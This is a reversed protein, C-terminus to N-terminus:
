TFTGDSRVDDTVVAKTSPSFHRMMGSEGSSVAFTLPSSFFSYLGLELKIEKTGDIDNDFYFAELVEITIKNGSKKTKVVKADADNYPSQSSSLSLKKQQKKSNSLEIM